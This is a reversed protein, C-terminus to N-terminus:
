YVVDNVLTEDFDFGVSYKKRLHQLMREQYGILQKILNKGVMIKMILFPLSTQKEVNRDENFSFGVVESLLNNQQLLNGANYAIDFLRKQQRAYTTVKLTVLNGWPQNWTFQLGPICEFLDMNFDIVYKFVQEYLNVRFTRSDGINTLELEDELFNDVM